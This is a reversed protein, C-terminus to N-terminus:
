DPQTRTREDSEQSPFNFSHLCIFKFVNDTYSREVKVQENGNEEANQLTMLAKELNSVGDNDIAESNEDSIKETADKHFIFLRYSLLLNTFVSSNRLFVAAPLATSKPLWANILPSWLKFNLM